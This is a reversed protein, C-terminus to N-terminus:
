TATSELDLRVRLNKFTDPDIADPAVVLSLPL